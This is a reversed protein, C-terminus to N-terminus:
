SEKPAMAADILQEATTGDPFEARANRLAERWRPELFGREAVDVAAMLAFLALRYRMADARLAQAEGGSEPVNPLNTKADSPQTEAAEPYRKRLEAVIEEDTRTDADFNGCCVLGHDEVPSGCCRRTVGYLLERMQEAEDARGDGYASWLEVDNPTELWFPESVCRDQGSSGAEHELEQIRAQAESALVIPEAPAYGLLNCPQHPVPYITPPRPGKGIWAYLWAVVQLENPQTM